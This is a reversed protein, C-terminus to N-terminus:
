ELEIYPMGAEVQKNKPENIDNEGPYIRGNIIQSPSIIHCEFSSPIISIRFCIASGSDLKINKNIYIKTASADRAGNAEDRCFAKLVYTARTKDGVEEDDKVNLGELTKLEEEAEELTIRDGVIYEGVSEWKADKTNINKHYSFICSSTVPVDELGYIDASDSYLIKVNKKKKDIYYIEFKYVDDKIIM